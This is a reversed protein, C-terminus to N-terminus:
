PVPSIPTIPMMIEATFTTTSLSWPGTGIASRVGDLITMGTIGTSGPQGGDGHLFGTGDGPTEGTGADMGPPAGVGPIRLSGPGVLSPIGSGVDMTILDGTHKALPLFGYMDMLLKMCGGDMTPWNQKMNRSNAPSTVDTWMVHNFNMVRVAGIQLVTTMSPIIIVRIRDSPAM